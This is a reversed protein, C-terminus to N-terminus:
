PINGEEPTRPRSKYLITRQSVQVPEFVQDPYEPYILPIPNGGPVLNEDETAVIQTINEHKFVIMRPRPKEVPTPAPTPMKFPPRVEDFPKGEEKLRDFFQTTTDKEDNM